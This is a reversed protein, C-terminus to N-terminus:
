KEDGEKMNTVIRQAELLGMAFETRTSKATAEQLKEMLLHKDIWEGHPRDVTPADDILERLTVEYRNTDINNDVIDKNAELFADADILRMTMVDKWITPAVGVM